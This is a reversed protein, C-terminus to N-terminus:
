NGPDGPPNPLRDDGGNVPTTAGGDGSSSVGVAIGGGIVAAGLGIWLLMNGGGNKPQVTEQPREAEPKEDPKEESEQVPPVREAQEETETGQKTKELQQAQMEERVEAVMQTFPPPDQVPDPQWSPAIELLNVIARRAQELYDKALYTLSLLRYAKGKEGETLDDPLCAELIEIVDDFRGENYLREADTLATECGEQALAGHSNILAFLLAPILVYVLSQMFSEIKSNFM